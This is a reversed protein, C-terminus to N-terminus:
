KDHKEIEDIKAQRNYILVRCLGAATFLGTHIIPVYKCAIKLTETPWSDDNSCYNSYGFSLLAMAVHPLISDVANIVKKISTCYNIQQTYENVLVKNHISEEENIDAGQEMCFCMNINIFLLAIFFKRMM